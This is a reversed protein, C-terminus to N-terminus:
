DGICISADSPCSLRGAPVSASPIARGVRILVAPRGADYREVAEDGLIAAAAAAFGDAAAEDDWVSHWVLAREGSGGEIVRYRDGAWGTAARADGGRIRLFLGTEFAGLSNEYVVRWSAEDGFVVDVPADHMRFRAPDLVQETSEPILEAFTPRPTARAWTTWAFSAGEAYPFVLVERLVEPASQFVPFAATGSLGARIQASPDPLTAPDVAQGTADRALFALMVLTAHGEIAAQAALQRDNGREPAILSDLDLHQDQLAHVLEHALVPRLAEDPVGAVVYLTTSDPDYYGVIQEAYLDTLLRALDLTDPVLGLLAYATRIGDVTAPSYDEALRHEVFARVQDASRVAVRVPERIALGSLPALQPLLSDVVADLGGTTTAGDACGWAFVLVSAVIRAKM